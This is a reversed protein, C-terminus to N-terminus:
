EVSYRCAPDGVHHRNGGSAVYSPCPPVDALPRAARHCRTTEISRTANILLAIVAAMPVMEYLMGLALLKRGEHECCARYIRSSQRENRSFYHALLYGAQSSYESGQVVDQRSLIDHTLWSLRGLTLWLAVEEIIWPNKSPFM